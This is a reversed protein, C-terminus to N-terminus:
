IRESTKLNLLVTYLEVSIKDKYMEAKLRVVSDKYTCYKRYAEEKTLYYGLEVRKGSIDNCYARYKGTEERYHIGIPSLRDLKSTREGVILRNLDSPILSCTEPSYVKNNYQQLLDKDLDWSSDGEPHRFKSYWINFNKFDEWEDCVYCGVYTVNKCLFNSSYCRTLM